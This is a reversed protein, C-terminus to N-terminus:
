LADKVLAINAFHRTEGTQVLLAARAAADYFGFRDHWMISPPSHHRRADAMAVGAILSTHVETEGTPGTMLEIPTSPDRPFVTLIADLADIIASGPLRTVRAGTRAAPFNADVIALVDGHGMEDLARLLEGHLLPHIGLLM